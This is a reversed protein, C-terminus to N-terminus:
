HGRLACLLLRWSRSNAPEALIARLAYHRATGLNRGSLAWWGWKRYLDAARSPPVLGADSRVPRLTRGRRGAADELAQRALRRQIAANRHSVSQLHVRYRLLVKSCNALRGREELRLWLDYDEVKAFAERYGGVAHFAESRMVVTPHFLHPQIDREHSAVLTEHDLPQRSHRLPRGVADIFEVQTGLAALDPEAELRAIQMALKEPLAIDDADMISLYKGSAIGAAENLSCPFGRNERSIVRIRPDCARWRELIAWTGDTSGDDM